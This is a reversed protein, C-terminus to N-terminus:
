EQNIEQLLASIDSDSAADISIVSIRFQRNCLRGLEVSTDEFNYIPVQSGAAERLKTAADDPLSNSCIVLKSSNNKVSNLVQRTGMKCSKSSIANKIVKGLTKSSSM